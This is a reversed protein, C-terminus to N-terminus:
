IQTFRCLCSNNTTHTHQSSLKFLIKCNGLIIIEEVRKTIFNQIVKGFKEWVIPRTPYGLHVIKTLILLFVHNLKHNIPHFAFVWRNCMLFLFQHFFIPFFICFSVLFQNGFESFENIWYNFLDFIM